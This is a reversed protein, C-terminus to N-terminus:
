HGSHLSSGLCSVGSFVSIKQKLGEIERGLAIWGGDQTGSRERCFAEKRGVVVAEM